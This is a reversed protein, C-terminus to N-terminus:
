GGAAFPVRWEGGQWRADLMYCDASPIYLTIGWVLLQSSGSLDNFIKVTVDLSTAPETQQSGSLWLPSDDRLNTGTLTVPGTFPSRLVLFMPMTWGHVTKILHVQFSRVHLTTPPGEFTGVWVPSAGIVPGIIGPAINQPTQGTPCNTPPPALDSIGVLGFLPDLTATPREVATPIAARGSILAQLAPLMQAGVIALAVAVFASTLLVRRARARRSVPLWPLPGVRPESAVSPSTLPSIEYAPDDDSTSSADDPPRSDSPESV